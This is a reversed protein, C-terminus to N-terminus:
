KAHSPQRWHKRIGNSHALEKTVLPGLDPFYARIGVFLAAHEDELAYGERMCFAIGNVITEAESQSIDM